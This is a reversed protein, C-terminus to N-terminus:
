GLQRKRPNGQGTQPEAYADQELQALLLEIAGEAQDVDSASETDAGFDVPASESPDTFPGPMSTEYGTGANNEIGSAGVPGGPNYVPGNTGFGGPRPFLPFRETGTVDLGPNSRFSADARNPDIAPAAIDFPLGGGGFMPLPAVTTKVNVPQEAERLAMNLYDRLGQEVRTATGIPDVTGKGEFSSLDQGDSGLAKGLFQTGLMAIITATGPDIPM